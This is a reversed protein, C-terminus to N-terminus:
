FVFVFFLNIGVKFCVRVKGLCFEVERLFFYILSVFLIRLGVLGVQIQYRFFEELFGIDFVRKWLLVVYCVFGFSLLKCWLYKNENSVLRSILGSRKGEFQLNFLSLQLICYFSFIYGGCFFFYFCYYSVLFYNIQRLVWFVRNELCRIIYSIFDFGFFFVVFFILVGFEQGSDLVREVIGKIGLIM